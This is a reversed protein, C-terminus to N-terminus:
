HSTCDLVSSERLAKMLKAYRASCEKLRSNGADKKQSAKTLERSWEKAGEEDGRLIAAEWEGKFEGEETMADSIETLIPNVESLQNTFYEVRKEAYLVGQSDGKLKATVADSAAKSIEISLFLTLFNRIRCLSSLLNASEKATV